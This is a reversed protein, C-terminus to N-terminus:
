LMETLDARDQLPHVQEPESKPVRDAPHLFLRYVSGISSSAEVASEVVLGEGVGGASPKEKILNDPAHRMRYNTPRRISNQNEGNEAM